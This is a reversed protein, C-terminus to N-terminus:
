PPARLGGSLESRIGILPFRNAPIRGTLITLEINAVMYSSSVSHQDLARPEHLSAALVSPTELVTQDDLCTEYRVYSVQIYQTIVLCLSREQGTGLRAM